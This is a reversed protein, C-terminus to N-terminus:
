PRAEVPDPRTPLPEYAQDSAKPFELGVIVGVEGERLDEKEVSVVVEGSLDDPMDVESASLERAQRLTKPEDGREAAWVTVRAKM